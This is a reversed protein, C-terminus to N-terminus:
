LQPSSVSIETVSGKLWCKEPLTLVQGGSVVDMPLWVKAKLACSCRSCSELEEHHTTKRNKILGMVKPLIGMCTSCGVAEINHPCVACISARREAEDSPVVVGGTMMWRKMSFIFNGIDGASVKVRYNAEGEPVSCHTTAVPNEEVVKTGLRHQWGPSLDGSEDLRHMRVKSMLSEFSGASYVTGDEETVSIKGSIQIKLSLRGFLM